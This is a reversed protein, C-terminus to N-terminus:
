ALLYQDNEAKLEYVVNKRELVIKWGRKKAHEYLKREPNFAIPQEVVELMSIDGASDGVAVSGQYGASHKKVLDALLKDKGHTRVIKEGTFGDGERIYTSGVFDDFGYYETIKGVIEEQSGSIAFLLYGDKKLETILNRTYTYVQDKFEEFVAESARNFQDVTLSLLMKDVTEVLTQEYEKFAESHTRKKWKMRASKAKQFEEVSSYGLRVIADAIAHYLQWRVLTGDIDFVAFKKM